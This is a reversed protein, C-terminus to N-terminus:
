STTGITYPNMLESVSCALAEELWTFLLTGTPRSFILGTDSKNRFHYQETFHGPLVARLSAVLVNTPTSGPDLNLDPTGRFHLLFEVTLIDTVFPKHPIKIQM